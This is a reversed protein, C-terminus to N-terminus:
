GAQDLVRQWDLVSLQGKVSIWEGPKLTALSDAMQPSGWLEVGPSAAYASDKGRLMFRLGGTRYSYSKNPDPPEIEGISKKLPVQIPASGINDVQVIYSITEGVRYTSKSFPAFKAVLDLTGVGGCAGGVSISPPCPKGKPCPPNYPKPEPAPRPPRVREEAHVGTADVVAVEQALGVASLVSLALTVRLAVRKKM